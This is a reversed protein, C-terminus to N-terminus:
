WVWFFHGAWALACPSICAGSCWCWPWCTQCGPRTAGWGMGQLMNLMLAMFLSFVVFSTKAPLLLPQGRPMIM